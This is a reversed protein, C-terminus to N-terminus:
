FQFCGLKHPLLPVTVLSDRFKVICICNISLIVLELCSILWLIISPCIAVISCLTWATTVRNTFKSSESRRKPLMSSSSSSLQKLRTWSQAFGYIAAKWGGGDMPNELCSYQLPNGNGERHSPRINSCKKLPFSVGYFIITSCWVMYWFLPTPDIPLYGWSNLIVFMSHYWKCKFNLNM